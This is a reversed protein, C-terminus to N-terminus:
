KPYLSYYRLFRTLLKVFVEKQDDKFDKDVDSKTRDRKETDQLGDSEQSLGRKFQLGDSEQSEQRQFENNHGNMQAKSFPAVDESNNMLDEIIEVPM